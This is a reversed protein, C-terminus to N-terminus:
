KKDRIIKSCFASDSSFYFKNDELKFNMAHCQLTVDDLGPVKFDVDNIIAEEKSGSEPMLTLVHVNLSKPISGSFGFLNWWGTGVESRLLYAIFTAYRLAQVMVKPQPETEKNEDKLEIVCLKTGKGKGIRALIDIGGGRFGSYKLENGSAGLPTPMQFYANLLKVPSIDRLETSQQSMENLLLEEICREPTKQEPNNKNYNKFHSRFAQAEKSDWEYTGAIVPINFKRRGEENEDKM